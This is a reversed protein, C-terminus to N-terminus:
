HALASFRFSKRLIFNPIIPVLFTGVSDHETIQCRNLKLLGKEPAYKFGLWVDLFSSKAFIILLQFGNVVKAFLVIRSPGSPESYVEVM